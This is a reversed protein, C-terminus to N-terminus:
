SSALNPRDVPFLMVLISDRVLSDAAARLLRAGAGGLRTSGARTRILGAGLVNTSVLAPRPQIQLRTNASIRLLQNTSHIVFKKKIM